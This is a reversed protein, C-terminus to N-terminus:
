NISFPDYETVCKGPSYDKGISSRPAVRQAFTLCFADARDPSDIGLDAKCKDKPWLYMRNDDTHDHPRSTLQDELQNDDPLAGGSELWALARAWMEADKQKYREPVDASGGFLVEQAPYGLHTLRDLTGAGLGGGDVFIVEPAHGIAHLHNFWEAALSGLQHTDKGRYARMGFTRADRGRRVFIVSEDGLASRACDIGMVVPEDRLIAPIERLRAAAVLPTPILQQEGAKPEKGLVRVRVFDSHMGYDEIWQNLLDKNTIQVTRSDVEFTRWRSRDRGFCRHFAGTNRTPNGFVLFFPEGDTLGGKEVEWIVDHIASAEDNIYFSSSDVAHQGAFAESNEKKWTVADLRGFQEGSVHEIRNELIRWWHSTIAAAKWKKIQPWTKTHLQPGTNATVMGRAGPRTDLIFSAVMGVGASKGIGHGSRVAMQVPLVTQPTRADFKRERILEGLKELYECFWGDPGFESQYRTAWPEPLKVVRFAPESGWPWAYIVYGLPDSALALVDTM